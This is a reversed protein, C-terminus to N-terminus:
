TTSSWSRTSSWCSRAPAGARAAARGDRADAYGACSRSPRTSRSRSAWRRPCWSSCPPRAGRASCTSRSATRRHGADLRRGGRGRRPRARPDARGDHRLRRLGRLGRADHVGAFAVLRRGRQPVDPRDRLGQRHRRRDGAQPLARDRHAAVHGPRLRQPPHPVPPGRRRRAGDAPDADRGRPLRARAPDRAALPDGRGPDRGDAAGRAARDPRRLAAAGPDGGVAAQAGGAAAAAGQRGAALSRGAGVARRAQVLDGRRARVGPRRPRRRGELTSGGARGRRGPRGLADVQLEVGDERLTAFCLKGTNRIFIVRGTVGVDVGTHADADLDPYARASRPWRTPAPWASRSRRPRTPRPPSGTTSRGGSGCSSPCTTSTTPSM